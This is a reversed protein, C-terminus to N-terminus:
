QIDGFGGFVPEQNEISPHCKVRGESDVKYIRKDFDAHGCERCTEVQQFFWVEKRRNEPDPGLQMTQEITNGCKRCTLIQKRPPLM